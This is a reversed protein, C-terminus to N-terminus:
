KINNFKLIEKCMIFLQDDSGFMRASNVQWCILRINNKTYGATSDMRDVSLSDLNRNNCITMKRGSLACLGNQDKYLRVLDDVVIECSRGSNRCNAKISSIKKAWYGRETNDRWHKKTEKHKDPNDKRWKSMRDRNKKIKNSDNKENIHYHLRRQDNRCYRCVNGRWKGKFKKFETIKRSNGCRNCRKQKEM